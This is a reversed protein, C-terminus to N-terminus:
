IEESKLADVFKYMVASLNRTCLWEIDNAQTLLMYPQKSRRDKWRFAGIWEVGGTKTWGSMPEPRLTLWVPNGSEADEDIAREFWRQLQPWAKQITQVSVVPDVRVENILMALLWQSAQALSYRVRAGKGAEIGPLGLRQLHKLRGRLAGQRTEQDADFVVALAGEIAGYSYRPAAFDQRIKRDM